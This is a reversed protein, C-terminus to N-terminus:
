YVTQDAKYVTTDAFVITTDASFTSGDADVPYISGWGNAANTEGFWSVSYISGFM